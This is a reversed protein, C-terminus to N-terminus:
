EKYKSIDCMDCKPHLCTDCVCEFNNCFEAFGHTEVELRECFNKNDFYICMGCVLRM